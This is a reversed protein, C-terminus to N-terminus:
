WVLMSGMGVTKAFNALQTGYETTLWEGWSELGQPVQITKSVGGANSSIMIGRTLGSAAVRGATTGPNGESRLYLTTFHAVYLHMGLMWTSLWKTQMLSASALNIFTTLVVLPLNTILAPAVLATINVLAGTGAGSTTIALGSAVSFGTGANTITATLINGNNDVSSVTLVAGSADAQVPVITDGVAYGAMTGGLTFAQIAQAYTGFKPYFALFDSAQYPPNTGFVLGSAGALFCGEVEDPFGWGSLLGFNINPVNGM